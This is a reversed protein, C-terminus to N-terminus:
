GVRKKARGERRRDRKRWIVCVRVCARVCACVCVCVSVASLLILTGPALVTCRLSPDKKLSGCQPLLKLDM